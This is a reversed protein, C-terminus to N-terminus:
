ESPQGHPVHRATDLRVEHGALQHLRRRGQTAAQGAPAAAAAKGAGGPVGRCERVAKGAEPAAGADASGAAGGPRTGTRVPGTRATGAQRLEARLIAVVGARLCGLPRRGAQRAVAGAGRVDAHLGGVSGDEDTGGGRGGVGPRFGGAGACREAGAAHHQGAERRPPGRGARQALALGDALRAFLPLALKASLGGNKMLYQELSVGKIYEMLFYWCDADRAYGFNHIKVVYENGRRGRDEDGRLSALTLIEATFREVFLPDRSLEPHMVKLAREEGNRTAKFVQGWGGRGLLQELQWGDLVAGVKPPAATGRPKDPPTAGRSVETVRRHLEGLEADRPRLRVARGLTQEAAALDHGAAQVAALAVAAAGSTPRARSAETLKTRAEAIRGQGLDRQGERFVALLSRFESGSVGAAHLDEVYDAIGAMRRMLPLMEELMGAAYGQGKLIKSNQERLVDFGKALGDLKGLAARCRDDTALAVDLQQKAVDPLQELAAMQATLAGLDGSLIDLVGELRQLDAASAAPMKAEDLVIQDRITEHVCDLAAGVLEVVASGGPVVSGLVLKAAFKAPAGFRRYLVVVKEKWSM